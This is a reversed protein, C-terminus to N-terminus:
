KSDVFGDTVSIEPDRAVCFTSHANKLIPYDDISSRQNLLDGVLHEFAIKHIVKPDTSNSLNNDQFYQM